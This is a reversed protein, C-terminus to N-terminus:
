VEVVMGDFAPEVAPPLHTKLTVYDLSPGMHTLITRHPQIRQAWQLVTDLSAHTKHEHVTFCSVVWVKIGTLIAFAKESLAVLDTSYAMSGFRFGLTTSFGHDQEFPVVTMGGIRFPGVIPEPRLAPQYLSTTVSTEPASLFAYKFRQVIQQLADPAAYVPVAAQMARNIERLDDLGHVHDAHAHTYLVADLRRIGVDLLQDRLDPPTDVLIETASSQVLIAPRRRRNRLNSPDCTGWGHSITPVGGSGGCGLITIQM